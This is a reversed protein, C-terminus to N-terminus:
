PCGDLIWEEIYQIDREPVSPLNYPMRPYIVDDFPEVGRMAKVLNSATPHGVELLKVDFGPLVHGVFEQKSM